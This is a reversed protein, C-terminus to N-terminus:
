PPPNKLAKKKQDLCFVPLCDRSYCSCVVQSGDYPIFNPTSTLQGGSAALTYTYSKSRLLDVVLIAVNTLTTVSTTADPGDSLYIASLQAGADLTTVTEVYYGFNPSVPAFLAFNTDVNSGMKPLPLPTTTRYEGKLSIYVPGVSKTADTTNYRLYIKYINKGSSIIPDPGSFNYSFGRILINLSDVTVISSLYTTPYRFLAGRHHPEAAVLAGM